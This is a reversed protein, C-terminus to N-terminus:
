ARDLTARLNERLDDFRRNAENLDASKKQSANQLESLIKHGIQFLKELDEKNYDM